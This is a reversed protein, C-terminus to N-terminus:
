KRAEMRTIWLPGINPSTAVIVAALQNAEENRDLMRLTQVTRARTELWGESGPQLGSAIRRYRGLSEERLTPISQMWRASQYPWWVNRLSEKEKSELAAIATALDGNWGAIATKYLAISRSLQEKTATGLNANEERASLVGLREVSDSLSQLQERQVQTSSIIQTFSLECRLWQDFVDGSDLQLLSPEVVSWEWGTGIEMFKLREGLTILRGDETSRIAAQLRSMGESAQQRADMGLM